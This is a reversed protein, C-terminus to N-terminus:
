ADKGHEKQYRAYAAECYKCYCLSTCRLTMHPDDQQMLDVGADIYKRAQYLWAERYEPANACGVWRGAPMWRHTKLEGDKGTVRGALKKGNADPEDSPLVGGM